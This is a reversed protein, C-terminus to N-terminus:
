SDKEVKAPRDDYLTVKAGDDDRTFSFSSKESEFASIAAAIIDKKADRKEQYRRAEASRIKANHETIQAEVDFRKSDANIIRELVSDNLEWCGFIKLVKDGVRECIQFPEEFPNDARAPDLCLVEINPDYDKIKEVLYLAKAEVLHGDVNIFEDPATQLYSM